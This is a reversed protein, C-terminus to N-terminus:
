AGKIELAEGYWIRFQGATIKINPDMIAGMISESDPHHEFIFRWATILNDIM